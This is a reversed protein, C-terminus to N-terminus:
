LSFVLNPVPTFVTPRIPWYVIIIAKPADSPDVIMARSDSTMALSSKRNRSQNCKSLYSSTKLRLAAPFRQACFGPAKRYPASFGTVASNRMAILKGRERRFPRDGAPSLFFGRRKCTLPAVAAQGSM